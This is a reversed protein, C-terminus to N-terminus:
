GGCQERLWAAVDARDVEHQEGSNMDKIRVVNRVIEDSGIIATFRAGLKSASRLQRDLKRQDFELWVAHTKRLEGALEYAVATAEDGVPAVYVDVGGGISDATKEARLALIIREMGASFGVAPTSPGGVGEVLEDYRGGGGLSSDVGASEHFVEFVTRTYYDLGRVLKPDVYFEIGAMELYGKVRDFHEVCEDCLITAVDPAEAIVVRCGRNKCDLVRLPNREFRDHCDGCLRELRGELFGRLVESYKVRCPKCGLTNLRMKLGELGIGKLFEWLIQITEADATPSSTGIVEIGVQHFQRYRGAGPRDYRFMPGMYFYKAVRAKRGLNHELHARVVAPTSEPRLSLNRGKKDPFTYMEKQVVDTAFGTGREFLETAEFIPTRIESYGYRSCLDVFRSEVDRWLPAEDPLIDHTGRMAKFKQSM